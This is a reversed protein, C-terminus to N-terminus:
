EGMKIFFFSKIDNLRLENARNEKEKPRIEEEKFM